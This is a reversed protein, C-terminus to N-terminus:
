RRKLAEAVEPPRAVCHRWARFEPDIVRAIALLEQLEAEMEPTRTRPLLWDLAPFRALRHIYAQRDHTM